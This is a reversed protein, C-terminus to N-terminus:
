DRELYRLQPLLGASRKRDLAEDYRLLAGLDEGRLVAETIRIEVALLHEASRLTEEVREAPVATAGDADGVIWDGPRVPQGGCQVPVQLEGVYEAGGANPVVSRAFVPLNDQAIEASDRIAGDIVVGALGKRRAARTIIGGWLATNPEGRGDIVLVHRPPCESVAKGVMLIDGVHVRVTFAPGAMSTAASRCHIGHDMGGCKGLADSVLGSSLSLFRRATADRASSQSRGPPPLDESPMSGPRGRNM